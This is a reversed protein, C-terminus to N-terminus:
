HLAYVLSPPESPGDDEESVFMAALQSLRTLIDERLGDPLDSLLETMESLIGNTEIREMDRRSITSRLPETFYTARAPDPQMATRMGIARNGAIKEFLADLARDIKEQETL